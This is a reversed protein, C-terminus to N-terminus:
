QTYLDAYITGPVNSHEEQAPQLHLSSGTETIKLGNGGRLAM